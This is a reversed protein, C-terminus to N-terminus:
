EGGSNEASSSSEAHGVALAHSPSPLERYSSEVIQDAPPEVGPPLNIIIRTVPPVQPDRPKDSLLGTARGIFDLARNAPGFQKGERAGILNTEAEEVLRDTTWLRREALTAETAAQLEQIRATVKYNKDLRSAAEHVTKASMNSTGYNNRYAASQTLGSARDQAYGEQKSTLKDRPM